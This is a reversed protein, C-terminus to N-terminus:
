KVALLEVEFVLAQNPGVEGAAGGREGYAMAAPVAIQWKSGAPMLKVAERWGPILQSVKLTAPKDPDTADFETGDVLTGRYHCEIQDADTPKRGDGTKLVKYQVGSPLTIVGSGRRNAELFDYGKQRNEVLEKRRNLVAKKRMENQMESRLTRLEADSLLLKEGSLGDRLGKLLVDLNVEVEQKKLNRAIDVGLAYNIKDQPTTLQPADAACAQAALLLIGVVTLVRERM